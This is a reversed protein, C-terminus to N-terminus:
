SRASPATPLQSCPAPRTVGGIEGAAEIREVLDQGLLRAPRDHAPHASRALDVLAPHLRSRVPGAQPALDPRALRPGPGLRDDRRPRRPPPRLRPDDARFEDVFIPREPRPGVLSMEGRLVNFLQPLEDINTHRLWDGIRTCRTDHDSAWIPGTEREADSRMSRFKIIRFLRGGQGVREQTYFIPRGTTVLIALAVLPLSPHSCRDPRLRRDRYRDVDSSWRAVLGRRDRLWHSGCRACRGRQGPRRRPHLIRRRGVALTGLDLRGSDVLVWHVAVDSNILQTLHPRAHAGRRASVAVVVDTARARDVLEDLRDIWGLVPVPIPRPISRWIVAASAALELIPFSRCRRIGVIPLGSWPKQGLSRILRRADRRAASWCSGAEPHAPSRPAEVRSWHERLALGHIAASGESVIRSGLGGEVRGGVTKFGPVYWGQCVESSVTEKM